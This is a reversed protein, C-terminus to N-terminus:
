RKRTTSGGIELAVGATIGGLDGYSWGEGSAVRYGVTGNLRMRRGIQAVLNAQPEFIFLNQSDHVHVVLPPYVVPRDHGILHPDSNSSHGHGYYDPYEAYVNAGTTARGYGFLARAGFRIPSESPITWQVIGGGYALQHDSDGNAMWYGGGGVMVSENFVWGVVGGVLVGDMHAFRTYKVEPVIALGNHVEEITMPGSIVPPAPTPRQAAAAAPLACMMVLAAMAGRTTQQRRM